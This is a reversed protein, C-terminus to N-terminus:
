KDNQIDVSVQQGCTKAIQQSLARGGLDSLGNLLKLGVLCLNQALSTAAALEVTVGSVLLLVLIFKMKIDLLSVCVISQRIIFETLNHSTTVLSHYKYYNM